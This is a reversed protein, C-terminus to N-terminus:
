GLKNSATGSMVTGVRGSQGFQRQRARQAAVARAKEDAMPAIKQEPVKPAKPRLATSAIAGIILPIAGSM